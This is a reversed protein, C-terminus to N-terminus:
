PRSPSTGARGGGGENGGGWAWSRVFVRTGARGWPGPSVQSRPPRALAAVVRVGHEGEAAEEEEEGRDAGGEEGTEAGREGAAGKGAPRM